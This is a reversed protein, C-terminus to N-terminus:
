WCRQVGGRLRYLGELFYYDGYIIPVEVNEGFPLKGTAKDLLGDKADTHLLGVHKELGMLIGQATARLDAAESSGVLDAMELLGCAAVASASSDRPANEVDPVSFDWPAVRHEPLHALFKAAIGRAADLYRQDRTYRYAFPLGLIAWSQGRSWCSDPAYGQGGLAELKEGSLPDFRLVHHTTFDPRVWHKLFTDLHAVAINRFRPQELEEAAWFLLPLNILTDIISMGYRKRSSWAEILGSAPNFRAALTMAALIGRRRAEDNGTLKYRMVSTPQYMFGVDHHLEYLRDDHFIAFLGHELSTALRALRGDGTNQSVLWLMGPWFGSTWWEAAEHHYRGQPAAHLYATPLRQSLARVKAESAAITANLWDNQSPRAAQIPAVAINM